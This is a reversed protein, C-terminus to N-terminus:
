NQTLEDANEKFFFMLEECLSKSCPLCAPPNEKKKKLLSLLPCRPYYTNNPSIKFPPHPFTSIKVVSNDAPFTQFFSTGEDSGYFTVGVQFQRTNLASAPPPAASAFAVLLASATLIAFIKM